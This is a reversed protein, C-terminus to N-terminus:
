KGSELLPTTFNNGMVLITVNVWYLEKKGKVKSIIRKMMLDLLAKYFTPKSIGVERATLQIMTADFDLHLAMYVFVKCAAPSLDALKDKNQYMKTFMGSSYNHEITIRTRQEIVVSRSVERVRNHARIVDETFPYDEPLQAKMPLLKPNVNM